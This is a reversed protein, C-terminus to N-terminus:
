GHKTRKSEKELLKAYSYFEKVSCEIPNIRIGMGKEIYVKLEYFTGGQNMKKIGDLEFNCVDIMTQISKDGSVIKDVRLLAIEKQKRIIDLFGESFGFEKIYEDYINRWILALAYQAFM